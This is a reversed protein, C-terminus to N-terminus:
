EERKKEDQKTTITITTRRRRAMYDYEAIRGKLSCAQESCLSRQLDAAGFSGPDVDHM